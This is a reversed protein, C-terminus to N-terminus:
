DRFNNFQLPLELESERLLSIAQQLDDRKKGTVRVQDGQIAAQVKIKSDKILKVIKKGLEKDIGQKVTAVLRIRQGSVIPEAWDLCKMDIGRKIFAQEIIERMQRIQIDAESILIVQGDQLEFEAEVGKFDFRTEVVRRAQDVANTLEHKDVESVVDFSPM